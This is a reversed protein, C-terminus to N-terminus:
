NQLLRQMVWPQVPDPQLPYAVLTRAPVGALFQARMEEADFALGIPNVSMVGTRMFAMFDEITDFNDIQLEIRNRDPDEYYFSTTGGHNITLIPRIGRDKLRAYTALLDALSEFTFAVHELGVTGSPRAVMGPVRAIALRHHEDDYTMFCIMPDKHLVQANLVEQYWQCVEEFREDTRLVVHALKSPRISDVPVGLVTKSKPQHM